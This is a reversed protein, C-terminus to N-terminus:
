PGHNMRPRGRARGALGDDALTWHLYAAPAGDGSGPADRAHAAPAIRQRDDFLLADHQALARAADQAEHAVVNGVPRAHLLTEGVVAGLQRLLAGDGDDAGAEVSREDAAHQRQI